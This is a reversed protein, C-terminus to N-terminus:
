WNGRIRKIIEALSKKLSPGVLRMVVLCEYPYFLYLLILGMLIYYFAKMSMYIYLKYFHFSCRIFASWHYDGRSFTFFLKVILKTKKLPVIM